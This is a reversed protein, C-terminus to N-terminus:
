ISTKWLSAIAEDGFLQRFLDEKPLTYQPFAQLYVKLRDFGIEELLIALSRLYEGEAHLLRVMILPLIFYSTVSLSALLFQRYEANEIEKLYDLFFIYVEACTATMLYATTIKKIPLPLDHIVPLLSLQVEKGQEVLVMGATSAEHEDESRLASFALAIESATLPRQTSMQSLERMLM